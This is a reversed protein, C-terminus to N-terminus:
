QTGRKLLASVNQRCEERDAVAADIARQHSAAARAKAAESGAGAQINAVLKQRVTISLDFCQIAQQFAALAEPVKNRQVRVRGLYRAADCRGFDMKLAEELESEATPLHLLNWEILGSLVFVAANIMRTKARDDDERALPYRQLSFENWARWYYAEGLLWDGLDIMHTASTIAEEYRALHSQSITRGLWADRHVPMAAIVTDYAALANTWEERQDYVQALTTAISLSTPFADHASLMWRLAEDLDAPQGNLAIRGLTLDADVFESDAERFARFEQPQIGCLGIRYRLLPVEREAAALEPPQVGRPVLSCTIALDLYRRFIESGAETRLVERWGAARESLTPLRVPAGAADREVRIPPSPDRVYRDGTLVDLPFADLVDLYTAFAPDAPASAAARQRYDAYPLGLEKARLTLLAAVEFAQEGTAADLAQELCRFCGHRILGGVDVVPAAPQPVSAVPSPAAPKRAACAATATCLLIVVFRIARM